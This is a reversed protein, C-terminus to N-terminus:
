LTDTGHRRRRQPWAVEFHQGWRSKSICFAQCSLLGPSGEKKVMYKPIREKQNGLSKLKPSLCLHAGKPGNRSM